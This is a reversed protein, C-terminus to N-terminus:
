RVYCNTGDAFCVGPIHMTETEQMIRSRSKKRRAFKRFLIAAHVSQFSPIQAGNFGIWVSKRIQTGIIERRYQERPFAFKIYRRAVYKGSFFGMYM